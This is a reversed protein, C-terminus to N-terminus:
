GLFFRHVDGTLLSLVRMIAGQILWLSPQLGKFYTLSRACYHAGMM